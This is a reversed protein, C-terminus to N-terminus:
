RPTIVGGVAHRRPLLIGRHDVLRPPAGVPDLDTGPLAILGGGCAPCATQNANEAVEAHCQRCLQSM